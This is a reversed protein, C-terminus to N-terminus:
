ALEVAEDLSNAIDSVIFGGAAYLATIEIKTKNATDNLV